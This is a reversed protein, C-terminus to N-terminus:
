KRAQSAYMFITGLAGLALGCFVTLSWELGLPHDQPNPTHVYVDLQYFMFLMSAMMMIMMIFAIKFLKPNKIKM